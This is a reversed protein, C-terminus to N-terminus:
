ERAKRRNGKKVNDILIETILDLNMEIQWWVDIKKEKGSPPWDSLIVEYECRSWWQSMGERKIFSRFEDFTVPRDSKAKANYRDILYPMINYSVFEKSNFNYVIVNFGKM